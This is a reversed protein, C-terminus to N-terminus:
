VEGEKAETAASVEATDTKKDPIDDETKVKAKEGTAFIEAAVKKTFKDINYYLLPTYLSSVNTGQGEQNIATIYIHTEENINFGHAELGAKIPMTSGDEETTLKYKIQASGFLWQLRKPLLPEDTEANKDDLKLLQRLVIFYKPQGSKSKDRCKIAMKCVQKSLEENGYCLHALAKSYDLIAYEQSLILEFMDENTFFDFASEPLDKPDDM